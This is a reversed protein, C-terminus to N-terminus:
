DKMLSIGIVIGSMGALVPIVTVAFSHFDGARDAPAFAFAMAMIVVFCFTGVIMLALLRDTNM